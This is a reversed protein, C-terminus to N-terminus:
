RLQVNILPLLVLINLEGQMSDQPLIENSTGPEMLVQESISFIFQLM